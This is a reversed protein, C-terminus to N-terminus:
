PRPESQTAREEIQRPHDPESGGIHYVAISHGITRVTPGVIHADLDYPGSWRLLGHDNVFYPRGTLTHSVALYGSQVTGTPVSYEIDYISPDVRGFYLLQIRDIRQEDMYEKLGILDQGWDLNSDLAIRHGNSPGGALLNFYSLYHPHIVVCVAILWAGGVSIAGFFLPAWRIRTMQLSAWLWFLPEAPLIMRLGLQKDSFLSLTVVLVGAPWLLIAGDLRMVSKERVAQAWAIIGFVILPVPTKLALLVLFYYWRGGAYQEGLLFSPDGAGVDRLQRDLARVYSEPLPVPTWGPLVRQATQLPTSVPDFSGIKRGTGSGLYGVNITILSLVFVMLSKQVFGRTTRSGSRRMWWWVLVIMVPYLFLATFKVLQALGLTVGALLVRPTSPRTLFLHFFFLSLAIFFAAGVDTTVLRAHALISPSFCTMGAALLGALAPRPSEFQRAWVFLLLALLVGLLITVCRSAIVLKQYEAAHRVMFVYGNDWFEHERDTGLSWPSDAPHSYLVVVPWASLANMLPPNLVCFDFDGTRLLNVGVPLHGFEDVTVSKRTLSTFGLVAFSIAGCALAWWAWGPTAAPPPGEAADRIPKESASEEGTFRSQSSGM